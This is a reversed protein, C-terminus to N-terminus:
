FSREPITLIDGPRMGYNTEVRGKNLIDDLKVPIAVVEGELKRYLMANNLAAFENAGGASLFIDLVTM